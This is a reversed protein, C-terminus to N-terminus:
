PAVQTVFFLGAGLTMGVMLYGFLVYLGDRTFLGFAFFAITIAGVSTTLPLLELLPWASPVVVCVTLTIWRMPGITLFQLRARSHRDLFASPRRMWGVVRRLRHAAIEQQLIFEPLWLKRRGSLAQISLLIIILAGVSPAGPIGSLPSVLILAVLLIFPTIARDGFENLVDRVSVVKDTAAHDLGDLLHALTRDYPNTM